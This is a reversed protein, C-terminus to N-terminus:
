GASMRSAGRRRGCGPRASRVSRTRDAGADQAGASAPRALGPRPRRPANRGLEPHCTPATTSDSPEHRAFSARETPRCASSRFNRDGCLGTNEPKRLVRAFFGPFGSSGGFRIWLIVGGRRPFRAASWCSARLDFVVRSEQRPLPDTRPEKFIRNNTNRQSRPAPSDPRSDKPDAPADQRCSWCGGELFAGHSIAPRSEHPPLILAM